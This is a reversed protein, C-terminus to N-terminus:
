GGSGGLCGGVAIELWESKLFLCLTEDWDTGKSIDSPKNGSSEEEREPLMRWVHTKLINPFRERQTLKASWRFTFSNLHGERRQM